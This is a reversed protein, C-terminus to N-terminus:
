VINLMGNADNFQALDHSEAGGSQTIESIWSVFGERKIDVPDRAQAGVFLAAKSGEKEARASYRQIASAHGAPKRSSYVIERKGSPSESPKTSM